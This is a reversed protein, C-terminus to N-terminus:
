ETYNKKDWIEIYDDGELHTNFETIAHDIIDRNESFMSCKSADNDECFKPNGCKKYLICFKRDMGDISQWKCLQCNKKLYGALYAKVRGVTYEGGGIFFNPVYDNYMMSMEFIGKRRQYNRCTVTGREVYDKLSQFLIYKVMPQEFNSITQDKPKFNYLRVKKGEELENSNIIKLIDEESEIVFEIIRIGSDKKEQTCEHTVCIEIFIPSDSENNRACFLDAVFGKYGHEKICDSYYKKLDYKAKGEIRCRFDGYFLCENYKDCKEYNSMSLIISEQNNFWDMIMIEAISHLYNDYSCKDTKHAFHWQRINGQKPIMFDHCYPCFYQKNDSRKVDDIHVYKDNKDLAFQQYKRIMNSLTLNTKGHEKGYICAFLM